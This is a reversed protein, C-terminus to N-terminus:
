KVGRIARIVGQMYTVEVEVEGGFIDGIEASHLDIIPRTKEGRKCSSVTRDGGKDLVLSVGKGSDSPIVYYRAGAKFGARDLKGGEIWLRFARRTRKIATKSTEM